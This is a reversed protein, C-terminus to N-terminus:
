QDGKKEDQHLAIPLGMAAAAFALAALDVPHVQTVEYGAVAMGFFFLLIARILSRSKM